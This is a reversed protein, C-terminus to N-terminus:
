AARFSRWQKTWGGRGVARLGFLALTLLLGTGPVPVGSPSTVSIQGDAITIPLIQSGVADFLRVDNLDIDVLGAFLGEFELTALLLGSGVALSGFVGQTAAGAAEGNGNDLTQEDIETNPFGLTDGTGFLENVTISTATVAFGAVGGPAIDFEFSSVQSGDTDLLVEIAITDGVQISILDQIGATGPDLDVAVNPLAFAPAVGFLALVGFLLRTRTMNM